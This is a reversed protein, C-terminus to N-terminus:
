GLLPVEITEMDEVHILLCDRVEKDEEPTFELLGSISLGPALVKALSAATFKFFQLILMYFTFFFIFHM